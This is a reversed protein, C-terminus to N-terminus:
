IGDLDCGLGLPLRRRLTELWGLQGRFERHGQVSLYIRCRASSIDLISHGKTCFVAEAKM